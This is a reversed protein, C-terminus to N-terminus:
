LELADAPAPAVPLSSVGLSRRTLSSAASPSDLLCIAAARYTVTFM